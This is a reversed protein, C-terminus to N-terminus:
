RVLRRHTGDLVVRPPPLWLEAGGIGGHIEIGELTLSRM